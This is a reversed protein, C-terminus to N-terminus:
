ATLEDYVAEIGRTSAALSFREAVRQRGAEGLAGARDPDALMGLMAEALAATDAYPVLIGTGGDAVIEPVAGSRFAVVPRRCAMAELLVRGFPEDRSCNAVVDMAALAVLPDDRQGCFAVRDAIGLDAARQRLEAEYDRGPDPFLTAGVVLFRVDPMRPAVRAAADLFHAQGKWPRIRGMCGVVPCAPPLGVEERFARREAESPVPSLELGNPVIRVKPSPGLAEAIFRSPAVAVTCRRLLFRRALAPMDYDRVHWLVRRGACAAYFATRLTNAHVIDIGHEAVLRRLAAIGRRARGLTRFPNRTRLKELHIGVVPVGLAEAAGALPGPPAGLLIPYRERDLTRLLALLSHEAGGLARAHDLALVTM